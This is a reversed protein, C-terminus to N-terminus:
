APKEADAHHELAPLFDGPEAEMPLGRCATRLLLVLQECTAQAAAPITVGAPSVVDDEMDLDNGSM